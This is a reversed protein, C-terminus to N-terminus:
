MNFEGNDKTYFYDQILDKKYMEDLKTTGEDELLDKNTLNFTQVNPQEPSKNM